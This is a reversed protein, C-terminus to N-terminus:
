RRYVNVYEKNFNNRRKLAVKSKYGSTFAVDVLKGTQDTRKARIFDTNNTTVPIEVAEVMSGTIEEGSNVSKGSKLRYVYDYQTTDAKKKDAQPKIVVLYVIARNFNSNSANSFSRIFIFKKGKKANSKIAYNNRRIEIKNIIIRCCFFMLICYSKFKTM